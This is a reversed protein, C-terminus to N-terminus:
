SVSINDVPLSVIFTSGEGEVSVMSITGSLKTMSERAIYLGLGSGNCHEHARFFMDFIQNQLSKEIGVGNDEVTVIVKSDAIEGKLKIWSEEKKTDRYKVGNSIINTFVMKLRTEDSQLIIDENFDWCISVHESDPIFRLDDIIIELLNRINVTIIKLESRNNRSYDIIEDIFSDMSEVREKMLKLYETKSDANNESESLNILGMLTSLPARLDHSASYVFRDLESNTKLLQKNQENIIQENQYLSKETEYNIKSFLLITYVSVSSAIITNLIFYIKEQETTFERLPIFSINTKFSIIDLVLSLFVFGIAGKWQEYGYLALAVAGATIFHLHMGTAFPESSAVLFVLINFLLLGIIKSFEIYGYRILLINVFAFILFSVYIYSEVAIGLYNALLAYIVTAIIVLIHLRIM